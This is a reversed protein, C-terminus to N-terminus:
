VYQEDVGYDEPQKAHGEPEEEHVCKKVFPLVAAGSLGYLGAEIYGVHYKSLLNSVNPTLIATTFFTTSALFATAVWGSYKKGLNQETKQAVINSLPSFIMSSSAIVVSANLPGKISPAHNNILTNAKKALHVAGISIGTGIAVGVAYFVGTDVAENIRNLSM